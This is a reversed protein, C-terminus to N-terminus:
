REVFSEDSGNKGSVAVVCISFSWRVCFLIAM